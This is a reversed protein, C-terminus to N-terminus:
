ELHSGVFILPDMAIAAVVLEPDGVAGVKWGLQQLTINSQNMAALPSPLKGATMPHLGNRDVFM